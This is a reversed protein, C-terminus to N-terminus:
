NDNIDGFYKLLIQELEDITLTFTKGNPEDQIFDIKTIGNNKRSIEESYKDNYWKIIRNPEPKPKLGPKGYIPCYEPIDLGSISLDEDLKCYSYGHGSTEIGYPTEHTDEFWKSSCHECDYCRSIVRVGKIKKSM